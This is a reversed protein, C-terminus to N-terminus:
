DFERVAEKHLIRSGGRHGSRAGRGEMNWLVSIVKLLLFSALATIHERLEPGPPFLM